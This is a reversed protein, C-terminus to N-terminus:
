DWVLLNKTHAIRIFFVPGFVAVLMVMVVMVVLMPM